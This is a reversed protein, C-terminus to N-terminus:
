FRSKGATSKSKSKRTSILSSDRNGQLRNRNRNELLFEVLIVRNRNELLIEGLKSASSTSCRLEVQILRNEQLRNELLIEGLQDVRLPPLPLPLPLTSFNL